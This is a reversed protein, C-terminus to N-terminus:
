RTLHEKNLHILVERLLDEPMGETIPLAVVEDWCTPTNETLMMEAIEVGEEFTWDDDGRNGIDPAEEPPPPAFQGNIQEVTRHLPNVCMDEGCLSKLRFEFNPKTAIQFLLRAVGIRKGQWKIVPRKKDRVVTKYPLNGYDREMKSRHTNTGGDANGTWIIHEMPLDTVEIEGLVLKEILPENTKQALRRALTEIRM